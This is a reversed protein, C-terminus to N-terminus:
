YLSQAIHLIISTQNGAPVPFNNEKTSCGSWSHPGNLRRDFLYWSSKGQLQGSVEMCCEM